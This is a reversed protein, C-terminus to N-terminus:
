KGHKDGADIVPVLPLDAVIELREAAAQSDGEAAELLM